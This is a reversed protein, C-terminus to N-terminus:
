VIGKFFQNVEEKHEEVSKEQSFMDRLLPVGRNTGFIIAGRIKDDSLFLKAYEGAKKDLFKRIDHGEPRIDGLSTLFINVVKLTASVKSGNYKQSQPSLMNAAAIQGQQRAPAVYGYTVGKHESVDGAAFIDKESTELYDNVLIGRKCAIGAQEALKKNPIVGTSALVMEAQIEAGASLRVAEVSSDGLISEVKEGLYFSMGRQELNRQLISAGEEDLQRPLLYPFFEVVHVKIGRKLCSDAFELGLVGGGIIVVSKSKGLQERIITADKLTRLTFFNTLNVGKIPPVFSVSGTALLLRDFSYSRKESGIETEVEKRTLGISTVREGLHLDVKNELDMSSAFVEERPIHDDELFYPLKPRFYYPFEEDTFQTIRSDPASKSLHAAAAAGAAGNGVIVYQRSM